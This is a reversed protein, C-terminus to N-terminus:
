KELGFERHLCAVAKTLDGEKVIFSINLESAGQAIAVVNVKSKGLIGFVRGAIGLTGIMGEGVVAVIAIGDMVSVEDIDRHMIRESFERKLVRVIKPADGKNVVFCISHESSAQSIVYVNIGLEAVASFVRAAVNSLEVMGAGEVNVLSLNRISTIGRIPKKDRVTEAKVVTGEVEPKFANKIRIPIGGEVAPLISKPHLVKAGFYSLDAAERYSLEPVTKAEAILKPDATLVGDVDSWIWVEEAKLCAAIISASYDSGNRGLTTVVGKETGSLFGTLIPTVGERLMPKVKKAVRARTVKFDVNASGFNDDTIVLDATPIPESSVGREILINALLLSSLREGYSSILDLSRPTFEGLVGISEYLPKLSGIIRRVEQLVTDPQKLSQEAATEHKKSLEGVARKVSTAKGQAADRTTDILLNTVGAMASVVVAPTKELNAEVLEAANTLKAADGISTGGFKMVIM